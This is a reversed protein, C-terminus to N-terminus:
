PPHSSLSSGDFFKGIMLFVEVETEQACWKRIRRRLKRQLVPFFISFTEYQTIEKPPLIISFIITQDISLKDTGHSRQLNEKPNLTSKAWLEMSVVEAPIV